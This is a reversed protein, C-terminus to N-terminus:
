ISKVAQWLLATDKAYPFAPKVGLQSSSGDRPEDRIHITGQIRFNSKLSILLAKHKPNNKM